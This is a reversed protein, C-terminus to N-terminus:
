VPREVHFLNFINVLKRLAFFISSLELLLSLGILGDGRVRSTSIIGFIWFLCVGIHHFVIGPWWHVFAIIDKMFGHSRDWSNRVLLFLCVLDYTWYGLSFWAYPKLFFLRTYIVDSLAYRAATCGILTASIAQLCSM